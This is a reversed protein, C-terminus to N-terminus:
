MNPGCELIKTYSQGPFDQLRCNMHNNKMSRDIAYYEKPPLQIKMRVDGNDMMSADVKGNTQMAFAPTLSVGAVLLALFVAQRM